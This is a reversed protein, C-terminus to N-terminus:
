HPSSEQEYEATMFQKLSDPDLVKSLETALYEDFRTLQTSRLLQRQTDDMAAININSSDAANAQSANRIARSYADLISDQQGASVTTGRARMINTIQDIADQYAFSQSYAAYTEYGDDGLLSRIRAARQVNMENMQALGQALEEPTEKERFSSALLVRDYEDAALVDKLAEIDVPSVNRLRRM